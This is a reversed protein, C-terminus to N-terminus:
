GRSGPPAARGAPPAPARAAARAARIAALRRGLEAEAGRGGPEYFRSGALERPLHEQATLGEPVDHPLVYGRGAGMEALLKTPANRLELPVALDPRREAAARAALGARYVADSKPALALYVAAQVLAADGEPLGLFQVASLADLAVGLAAPDALGVDESAM